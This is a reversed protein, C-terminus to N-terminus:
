IFVCHAKESISCIVNKGMTLFVTVAVVKSYAHCGHCASKKILFYPQAEISLAETKAKRSISYELKKAIKQANRLYGVFISYHRSISSSPILLM